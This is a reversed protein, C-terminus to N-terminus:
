LRKEVAANGVDLMWLYLLPTLAQHSFSLLQLFFASESEIMKVRLYILLFM